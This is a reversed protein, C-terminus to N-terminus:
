CSDKVLTDLEILKLLLKFNKTPKYIRRQYEPTNRQHLFRAPSRWGQQTNFHNQSSSDNQQSLEAGSIRIYQAQFVTQGPCSAIDESGMHKQYVALTPKDQSDGPLNELVSEETRGRLSNSEAPKTNPPSSENRTTELDDAAQPGCRTHFFATPSVHKSKRYRFDLKPQSPWSEEM